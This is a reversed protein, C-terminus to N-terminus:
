RQAEPGSIDPFVPFVPTFNKIDTPYEKSTRAKGHIGPIFIPMQTLPVEAIPPKQRESM